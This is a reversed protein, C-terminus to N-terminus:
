GKKRAKVGQMQLTPIREDVPKDASLNIGTVLISAIVSGKRELVVGMPHPYLVRVLSGPLKDDLLDCDAWIVGDHISPKAKGAIRDLTMQAPGNAELWVSVAGSSDLRFQVGEARFSEGNTNRVGDVGLVALRAQM